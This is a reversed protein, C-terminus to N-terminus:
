SKSETENRLEEYAQIMEGSGQEAQALDGKLEDILLHIKETLGDPFEWPDIHPSIEELIDLMRQNNM